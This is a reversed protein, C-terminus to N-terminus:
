KFFYFVAKEQSSSAICPIISVFRSMETICLVEEMTFVSFATNCANPHVIILCYEQQNGSVIGVMNKGSLYLYKCVVSYVRQDNKKMMMVMMM